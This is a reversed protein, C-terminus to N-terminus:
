GVCTVKSPGESELHNRLEDAISEIATDAALEKTERDTVEAEIGM